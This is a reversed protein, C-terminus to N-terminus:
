ATGSVGVLKSAATNAAHDLQMGAAMAAVFALAQPQLTAVAVLGPGPCIGGLGAAPVSLGISCSHSSHKNLNASGERANSRRWRGEYEGWGAGFLLAGSVLNADIGQKAPLDYRVACLPGCSRRLAWQFAPLAVLLAGGMVFMLSPDFTGSLVSLFGALALLAPCIARCNFYAHSVWAQDHRSNDLEGQICCGGQCWAAWSGQEGAVKSPKAMGSVGLGLAFLFGSLLDTATSLAALKQAVLEAPPPTGTMVAKELATAGVLEERLAAASGARREVQRAAASLLLWTTLALALLTVGFTATPSLPSLPAPPALGSPLGFVAAVGSLHAALMGSLM